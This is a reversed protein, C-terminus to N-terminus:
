TLQKVEYFLAHRESQIYDYSFNQPADEDMSDSALPLQSEEEQGSTAQSAKNISAVKQERL